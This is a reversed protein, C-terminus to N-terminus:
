RIGYNARELLDDTMEYLYIGEPSNYAVFWNNDIDNEGYMIEEFVIITEKTKAFEEQLKEALKKPIALREENKISHIVINKDLESVKYFVNQLM